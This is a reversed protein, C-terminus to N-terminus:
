PNRDHLNHGLSFISPSSYFYDSALLRPPNSNHDTMIPADNNRDNHYKKPFRVNLTKALGFITLQNRLLKDYVMEFSLKCLKKPGLSKAFERSKSFKFLTETLIIM